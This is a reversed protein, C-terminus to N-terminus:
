EAVRVMEGEAAFSQPRALTALYFKGFACWYFRCHSAFAM